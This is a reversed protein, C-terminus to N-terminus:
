TSVNFNVIVNTEDSQLFVQNLGVSFAKQIAEFFGWCGMFLTNERVYPNSIGM